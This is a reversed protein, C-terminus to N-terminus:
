SLGDSRLVFGYRALFEMHSPRQNGFDDWIVRMQLAHAAASYDFLDDDETDRSSPMLSPMSSHSSDSETGSDDWIMRMQLAHVSYLMRMPLAGASYDFMHDDGTGHSSPTLSPMSSHSSDSETDSDWAASLRWLHLLLEVIRGWERLSADWQWLRVFRGAEKALSSRSIAKHSIAKKWARFVVRMNQRTEYWGSFAVFCIPHLYVHQLEKRTFYAQTKADSQEDICHACAQNSAVVCEEDITQLVEDNGIRKQRRMRRMANGARKRRRMPCASSSAETHASKRKKSKLWSHNSSFGLHLVHVYMCVYM